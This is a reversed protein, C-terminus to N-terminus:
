GSLTKDEKIGNCLSEAQTFYRHFNTIIKM